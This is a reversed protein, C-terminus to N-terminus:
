RYGQGQRGGDQVVGLRRWAQHGRWHVHCGVHSGSLSGCCGGDLHVPQGALAEDRRHGPARHMHRHLAALLCNSTLQQRSGQQQVVDSGDMGQVRWHLGQPACWPPPPQTSLHLLDVYESVVTNAQCEGAEEDAWLWQLCSM